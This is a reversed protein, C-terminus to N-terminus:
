RRALTFYFPGDAGSPLLRPWGRAGPLRVRVNEARRARLKEEVKLRTKQHPLHYKFSHWRGERGLESTRWAYRTVYKSFKRRPGRLSAQRFV